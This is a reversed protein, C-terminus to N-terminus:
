VEEGGLEGGMNGAGIVHLDYEEQPVTDEVRAGMARVSDKLEQTGIRYVDVITVDDGREIFRKALVAGGHTMDLILVKM